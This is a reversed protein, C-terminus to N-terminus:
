CNMKGTSKLRAPTTTIRRLASIELGNDEAARRIQKRAAADLDLPSGHPRKGELEIGDYGWEKAKPFIELLPVAPGDYYGGSLTITYLSIKM